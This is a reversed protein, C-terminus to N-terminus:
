RAHTQAHAGGTTAARAPAAKAPTSGAPPTRLNATMYFREKGTNPDTQISGQFGPDSLYPSAAMLKLLHTAQPSEGQLSVGGSTSVGLHQLYSDHPLRRTIDALVDVASPQSARQRALFGSAGMREVLEHRLVRVRHAQTQLADVQDQMTALVVRRNHLWQGMALVVLLVAVAALIANLRRRPHKHEPRASVALMNVGLRADGDLADVADVPADLAALQQLWPTLRAKPTAVLEVQLRGDDLRRVVRAAYAVDALRFPTQRDMEYGLVRALDGRAAAPLLLTRRLVQHPALCLALRLDAPEVGALADHLASRQLTDAETLDITALVADAGARRVSLADGDLMLWYWSAKRTWMATWRSPLSAALERGWWAFFAPLSSGRWARRVREGQRQWLQTLENM